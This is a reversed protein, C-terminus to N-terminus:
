ILPGHRGTGDQFSAAQTAAEAVHTGQVVGVEVDVWALNDREDAVVTGTFDVITLANVPLRSSSEPSSNKSPLGTIMVLGSCADAIPM